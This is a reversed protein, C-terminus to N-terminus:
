RTHTFRGPRRNHIQQNLHSLLEYYPLSEPSQQQYLGESINQPQEMSATTVGEAEDEDEGIDIQELM